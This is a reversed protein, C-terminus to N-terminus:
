REPQNGNGDRTSPVYYGPQAQQYRRALPGAPLYQEELQRLEEYGTYAYWNEFPYGEVTAIFDLDAASGRDRLAVLYDWLGKTASRICNAAFFAIAYGMAQVDALPPRPTTRHTAAGGMNIMKYRSTVDRAFRSMEELSLPGEIFTLDAGAAAYANARAIAEDPGFVGRADTRAGIVLDPDRRAEVAARIKGVMEETSILARGAVHGARPPAEQDEIFLAAVGAQEFERVAHRVHVATGYGTDADVFLPITTVRGINRCVMAMDTLGLYGYDPLGLLANAIAQGGAFVARYGVQEIVRASLADFAAPMILLEGSDLLERLHRAKTTM